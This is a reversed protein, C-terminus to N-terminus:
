PTAPPNLPYPKDFSCKKCRFRKTKADCRKEQGCQPCSVVWTDTGSLRPTTPRSSIKDAPYYKERIEQRQQFHKRIKEEFEEKSKPQHVGNVFNKLAYILLKRALDEPFIEQLRELLTTGLEETTPDRPLITKAEAIAKVIGLELSFSFREDRFYSEENVCLLLKRIEPEDEASITGDSTLRKKGIEVMFGLITLALEETYGFTSQYFPRATASLVSDISM